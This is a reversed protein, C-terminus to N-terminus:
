GGVRIGALDGSSTAPQVGAVFLQTVSSQVAARLRERESEAHEAVPADGSPPAGQGSQAGGGPGADAGWRGVQGGAAPWHRRHVRQRRRHGGLEDVDQCGDREGSGM